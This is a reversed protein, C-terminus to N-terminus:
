SKNKGLTRTWYGQDAKWFFDTNLTRKRTVANYVYPYIVGNAEKIGALALRGPVNMDISDRENRVRLNEIPVIQDAAYWATEQKIEEISDDQTLLFATTEIDGHKWSLCLRIDNENNTIPRANYNGWGKELVFGNEQALQPLQAQLESSVTTKLYLIDQTKKQLFFVEALQKEKLANAISQATNQQM